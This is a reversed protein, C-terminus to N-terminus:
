GKMNSSTGVTVPLGGPRTVWVGGKIQGFAFPKVSAQQM